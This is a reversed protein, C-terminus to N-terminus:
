ARLRRLLAGLTIGLAFAGVVRRTSGFRVFRTAQPTIEVVGIPMAACGGGGGGGEGALAPLKSTEAQKNSGGGGGGGFGYAVRAVTIVKKDGVSVPEGFVANVTAKAGAKEGLGEVFKQLEM